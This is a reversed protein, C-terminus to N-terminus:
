VQVNVVYRFLLWIQHLFTGSLYEESASSFLIRFFERLPGGHDIAGEGVFNIQLLYCSRSHMSHISKFPM